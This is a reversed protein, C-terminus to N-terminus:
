GPPGTRYDRENRETRSRGALSDALLDDLTTPGVAGVVKAMIMGNPHIVYTEPVGRVGYNLAARMGPDTAQPFTLGFETRFRRAANATDNWVIGIVRVGQEAHRQAFSELRPAEERCPVCWSAWFNIVVPQGLYDALRVRDGDLDPLDFLPSPKGVLPSNAVQGGRELQLGFVVGLTAIIPIGIALLWWRISRSSRARPNSARSAEETSM